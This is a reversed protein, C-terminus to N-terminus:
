LATQISVCKSHTHMDVSCDSKNTCTYAQNKKFINKFIWWNDFNWEIKRYNWPMSKYKATKWSMPVKSGLRQCASHYMSGLDLTRFVWVAVSSAADKCFNDKCASLVKLVRPHVLSIYVYRIYLIHLFLGKVMFIHWIFRSITPTSIEQKKISRSTLHKTIFM